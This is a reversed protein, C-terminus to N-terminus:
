RGTMGPPLSLYLTTEHFMVSPPWIQGHEQLPVLRFTLGLRGVQSPHPGQGPGDAVWPLAVQRQVDGGRRQDHMRFGGPHQQPPVLPLLGPQLDAPVAVRPLAVWQGDGAPFRGLLRPQGVQHRPRVRLEPVQDDHADRRALPLRGVLV